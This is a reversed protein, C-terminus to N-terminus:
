GIAVGGLLREIRRVFARFAEAPDASESSPYANSGGSVLRRDGAEIALNWHIGEAVNMKHVCVEPWEWCRHEGMWEWFETWDETSPAIRELSLLKKRSSRHTFVVM